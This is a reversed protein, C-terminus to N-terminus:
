ASSTMVSYKAAIFETWMATLKVHELGEAMRQLNIANEFKRLDGSVQNFTNRLMEQHKPHNLVAFVEGIDTFYQFIQYHYLPNDMQKERWRRGSFPVMGEWLRAKMAQVDKAPIPMQTPNDLYNLRRLAQDLVSTGDGLYANSWIGYPQAALMFEKWHLLPLSTKAGGPLRGHCAFEFFRLITQAPM